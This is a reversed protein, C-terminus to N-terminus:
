STIVTDTPQWLLAVPQAHGPRVELPLLPARKGAQNACTFKYLQQNYEIKLNWDDSCSVTPLLMGAHGHCALFDEANRQDVLQMPPMSGLVCNQSYMMMGDELIRDSSCAKGSTWGDPQLIRFPRDAANSPTSSGSHVVWM